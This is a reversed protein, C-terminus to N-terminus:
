IFRALENSTISLIEKRTYGFDDCFSKNVDVISDLSDDERLKVLIIYDSTNYFMRRFDTEERQLAEEEDIQKSINKAM